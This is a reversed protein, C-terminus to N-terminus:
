ATERIVLQTPAIMFWTEENDPEVILKVLRQAAIMGMGKMDVSITTLPPHTFAAVSYNHFGIVAVDDPIQRGFEHLARLVGVAIYDDACVIADLDPVDKLLQKTKEYGSEATYDSDAVALASYPLDHLTLALRFGKYKEHSTVTSQPGNILCIKRRGQLLLHSVAQEMGNLYDAMVCNVAVSRSHGGAIVFPLGTSKLDDLLNAQMNSGMLIIGQLGPQRSAYHRFNGRIDSMSNNDSIVTIEELSMVHEVGSRVEAIYEPTAQFNADTGMGTLLISRTVEPIARLRELPYGMSRAIEWVRVRTQEDVFEYNNLVRSVTSPSVNAKAAISDLTVRM